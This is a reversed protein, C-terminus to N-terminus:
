RPPGRRNLLGSWWGAAAFGVQRWAGRRAYRALIVGLALFLTIPLRGPFLDRTLLIKNREGLYVPLRPQAAIDSGAGTTTGQHHLVRADPAFGLRLGARAARLCWEVEECYLFYDERMVGGVEVFRRSVLMSAGLLYNQNREIAAADIADNISAGNGLSVARAFWSQWLGGYAQVRGAPDHLVSGVAECGGQQLRAVMAALAGAEPETDPNLIWWLGADRSANLGFNVGGAFGLNAPAQLRRVRQGGPLREPTAACLAAFAEPGGNEAVVIEFGTWTSGQLAAICRAVDPANRFGVIVIAVTPEGDPASTV